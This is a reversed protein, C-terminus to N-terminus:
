RSLWSKPTDTNRTVVYPGDPIVNWQVAIGGRQGFVPVSDLPCYDVTGTWMRISDELRYRGYIGVVNPSYPVVDGAVVVVRASLANSRCMM